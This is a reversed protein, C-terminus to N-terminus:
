DWYPDKYGPMEDDDIHTGVFFGTSGDELVETVSMRPMCGTYSTANATSAIAFLFDRQQEDAEVVFVTKDDCGRLAVRLLM